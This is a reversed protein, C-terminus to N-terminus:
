EMHQLCGDTTEAWQRIVLFTPLLLQSYHLTEVSILVLLVQEPLFDQLLALNYLYM